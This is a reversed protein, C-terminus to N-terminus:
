WAFSCGTSRVKTGFGVRLTKLSLNQGIECRTLKRKGRDYTIFPLGEGSLRPEYQSVVSDIM